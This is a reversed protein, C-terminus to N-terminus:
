EILRVAKPLDDDNGGSGPDGGSHAIIGLFRVTVEGGNMEQVFFNGFNALTFHDASGPDPSTSPDFFPAPRIRPTDVTCHGEVTDWVCGGQGTPVEQGSPLEANTRWEVDPDQGILDSFGQKTPGTMNGPEPNVDDGTSVPNGDGWCGKIQARYDSAGQTNPKRFPGWWSPNYTGPASNTKLTMAMGYHESANYGTEGRVYTDEDPDFTDNPGPETGDPEEWLDPMTLPLTCPVVPITPSAEAVAHAAVDMSEFGLINAFLTGLPNGHSQNRYITVGVTDASTDVNIEVEDADVAENVVEHRTAFRLAEERAIEAAGPFNILSGAGALAAADAAAQAETRATYAMGLDIAIAAGGLVAVLAVATFVLSIGQEDSGLESLSRPQSAKSM